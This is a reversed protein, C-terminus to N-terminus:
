SMHWVTLSPTLSKMTIVCHSHCLNECWSETINSDAAPVPMVSLHDILSLDDAAAILFTRACCVANRADALGVAKCQQGPQTYLVHVGPLCYPKPGLLQGGGGGCVCLCMRGGVSVMM